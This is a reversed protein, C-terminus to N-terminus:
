KERKREVTWWGLLSGTVGSFVKRQFGSPGTWHRLFSQDFVSRRWSSNARPAREAQSLRPRWRQRPPLHRNEYRNISCVIVPAVRTVRYLNLTKLKLHLINKPALYRKMKSYVKQLEVKIKHLFDHGQKKKYLERSRTENVRSGLTCSHNISRESCIFSVSFSKNIFLMRDWVWSGLEKGECTLASPEHPLCPFIARKNKFVRWRTQCRRCRGDGLLRNSFPTTERIEYASFQPSLESKKTCKCIRQRPSCIANTRLQSADIM